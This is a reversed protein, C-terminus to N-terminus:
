RELRLSNLRFAYTPARGDEFLMIKQMHALDIPPGKPASAIESLPIRIVRRSQPALEFHQNYRETFRPNPRRDDVRVFLSLQQTNPNTVDILLASYGRWDPWVEQLAVGPWNGRDPQVLLGDRTSVWHAGFAELFHRGLVSNLQVLQPLAWARQIHAATTAAIPVLIAAGSLLAIVEFALRAVTYHRLTATVRRERSDRCCLPHSM